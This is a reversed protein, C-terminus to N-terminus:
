ILDEGHQCFAALAAVDAITVKTGTVQVGHERLANFTRSLTEPRIGVRAAILRKSHPLWAVVPGALKPTLSLLYLALRQTSSKLKLNKVERVLSRFHTSMAGVMAVALEPMARLNRCLREAPMALVRAPGLARASMLYPKGALVAAAIFIEPARLINVLTEEGDSLTGFLGIEGKLIIHLFHPEDGQLFLMDGGTCRLLVAEGLIAASQEASLAAFLPSGQVEACFGSGRGPGRGPKAPHVALGQM